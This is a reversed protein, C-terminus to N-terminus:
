IEDLVLVLDDAEVLTGPSLNITTIKGEYGATVTTEMKMAEIIFLAQNQKVVEGKKVLVKGLMGQLPSGIETEEVAKKNSEKKVEAYIDKVRITRNQGNLNFAVTKEGDENTESIYILKIIINKGPAIEVLADEGIKLGYFFQPTPIVSVNGFVKQHQFYDSFVKPYLKYSIFDEMTLDSSFEQQFTQFEADFDVPTLTANARETLPAEDKLVIKQFAKPFGGYPQGLEGRFFAKTSAPFDINNDASIIDTTTLNNLVMYIALDGVVKSSPTVKVINGFLKNVAEYTKKIATMKHGVGLATAQPKLNSYQGGPIEHQYVDATSSKLGSEFPYYYQRVNEWYDAFQNLSTIDMEPCVEQGQLVEILTNFNPQSTLGSLSALAVDVVDVGAEIAKIYTTLQAGSTDHTHLHIPLDVHQKLATILQTAAYPKLLGAMDKIALIHAGADELQKALDVYYPLTYKNENPNSIDGTYCICAEAIANTNNSVTAISVKMNEVWNLSDFIRFIDMGNEAAKEIFAIVLNDPYATYGVANSGRLLMQTLINPIAKRISRLREWPCEKLFRMAVDFTAGGWVEMSFINPHHQAYSEAVALMDKTRM